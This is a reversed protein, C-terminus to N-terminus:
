IFTKKHPCLFKVKKETKAVTDGPTHRPSYHLTLLAFLLLHQSYCSRQLLRKKEPLSSSEMTPRSTLPQVPTRCLMLTVSPWAPSTNTTSPVCLAGPVGPVGLQHSSVDCFFPVLHLFGMIGAASQPYTAMSLNAPLSPWGPTLPQLLYSM